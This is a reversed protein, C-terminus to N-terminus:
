QFPLSGLPPEVSLNPAPKAVSSASSLDCTKEARSECVRQAETEENLFNPFHMRGAQTLQSVSNSGTQSTVTM